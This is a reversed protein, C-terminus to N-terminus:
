ELLELIEIVESSKNDIEMLKETIFDSLKEIYNDTIVSDDIQTYDSVIKEFEQRWERNHTFRSMKLANNLSLDPDALMARYIVCIMICDFKDRAYLTQMNALKLMKNIEFLTMNLFIGMAILYKREPVIGYNKLKSMMKELKAGNKRGHMLKHFSYKEGDNLLEEESIRISIFEEIYKLLKSYSSFFVLQNLKIFKEFEDEEKICKLENYFGITERNYIMSDDINRKQALTEYKLRWKKLSDFNYNINDPEANHRSLIYIVIADNIDKAYLVSYGGYKSLLENTGDISLSLGFALKIFADRNQPMEGNMCWKRLTNKSFGIRESIKNFSDSKTDLVSNIYKKWDIYVDKYNELFLMINDTNQSLVKNHILETYNM